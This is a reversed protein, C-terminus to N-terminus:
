RLGVTTAVKLPRNLLPDGAPAVYTGVLTLLTLRVQAAVAALIPTQIVCFKDVAIGRRTEPNVGGGTRRTRGGPYSLRQPRFAPGLLSTGASEVGM